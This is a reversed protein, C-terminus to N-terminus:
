GSQRARGALRAALASAREARQSLRDYSRRRLREANVAVWICLTALPIEVAAASIIASILEGRRGTTVVDFWADAVLLTATVSAVVATLPSRRLACFALAALAFLMAIDYGVWVLDYHVARTHSPLSVALYVIWPILVLACFAALPAIWRPLAVQDAVPGAALTSAALEVECEVSDLELCEEGAPDIV